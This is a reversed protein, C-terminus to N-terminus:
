VGNSTHGRSGACGPLRHRGLLEPSFMIIPTHRGLFVFFVNSSACRDAGVSKKPGDVVNIRHFPGRYMSKKGIARDDVILSGLLLISTPIDLM